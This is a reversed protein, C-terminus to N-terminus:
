GPGAPPAVYPQTEMQRPSQHVRELTQIREQLQRLQKKWEEFEEPEGRLARIISTIGWFVIPALPIFVWVIEPRLLKDVIEM